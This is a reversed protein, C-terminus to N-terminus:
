APTDPDVQHVKKFPALGRYADKWDAIATHTDRRINWSVPNGPTPSTLGARWWWHEYGDGDGDKVSFMWCVDQTGQRLIFSGSDLEGAQSLPAKLGPKPSKAKGAKPKAKGAKPTKAV